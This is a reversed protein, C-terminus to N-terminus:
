RKKLVSLFISNRFGGSFVFGVALVDVAPPQPKVAGNFGQALKGPARMVVGVLM